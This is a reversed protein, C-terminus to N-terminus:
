NRQVRANESIRYLDDATIKYQQMLKDWYKTPIGCKAWSIVTTQHVDLLVALHITGGAQKFLDEITRLKM